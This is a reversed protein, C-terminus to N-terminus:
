YSRVVIVNTMGRRKREVLGRGELRDIIRSIKAKGLGTKEIIDAQFIVKNESILNFVMKDDNRLDSIDIKRTVPKEKIRKVVLKENPKSFILFLGFIALVGVISLALYTQKTITDYMPCYDEGHALSCSSNVIDNLTSNFIFIIFVILISIGIILFGVNKNEM